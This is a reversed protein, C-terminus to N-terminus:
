IGSWILWSFFTNILWYLKRVLPLLVNENGPQLSLPQSQHPTDKIIDIEFDIWISYASLIFSYTFLHKFWSLDNYKFYEHKMSHSLYSLVSWRLFLCLQATWINRSGSSLTLKENQNMWEVTDSNAQFRVSVEEEAPDWYPQKTRVRTCNNYECRGLLDAGLPLIFKLEIWDFWVICTHIYGLHPWPVSKSWYDFVLSSCTVM